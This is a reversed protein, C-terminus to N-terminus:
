QLEQAALLENRQELVQQITESAATVGWAIGNWAMGITELPHTVRDIAADKVQHAIQEVGGHRRVQREVVRLTQKCVVTSLLFSLKSAQYVQAAGQELTSIIPGEQYKQYVDQLAQDALVLSGGLAATVIAAPWLTLGLAVALIPRKTAADKGWDLFRSVEPGLRPWLVRLRQSRSRRGTTAQDSSLDRGRNGSAGAGSDDIVEITVTSAEQKNSAASANILDDPSLTEHAHRLSILFLRALGLAADAIDEADTESVERFAAEVDRLVTSAGQIARFFDDETPGRQPYDMMYDVGEVDSSDSDDSVLLLSNGGHDKWANSMKNDLSSYDNHMAQAMARHEETSHSELEGALHGIGDAFEQCKRLIASPLLGVNDELEGLTSDASDLLGGIASLIASAEDHQKKQLALYSERDGDIRAFAVAENSPASFDMRCKRFHLISARPSCTADVKKGPPTSPAFADTTRLARSDRLSAGHSGFRSHPVFEECLM